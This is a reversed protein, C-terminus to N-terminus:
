IKVMVLNRACSRAWFVLLLFSRGEGILLSKNLGFLQSMNGDLNDDIQASLSQQLDFFTTKQEHNLSKFKDVSSTVIKRALRQAFSPHSLDVGIERESSNIQDTM